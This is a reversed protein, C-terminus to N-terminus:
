ELKKSRDEVLWTTGFSSDELTIGMATLEARIKDAENWNKNKGNLILGNSQSSFRKM